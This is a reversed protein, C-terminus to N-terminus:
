AHVFDTGVPSGAPFSRLWDIPFLYHAASTMYMEYANSKYYCKANQEIKFTTLSYAMTGTPGSSLGVGLVNSHM